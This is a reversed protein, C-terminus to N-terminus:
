DACHFYSSCRNSQRSALLDASHAHPQTRGGASLQAGGWGADVGAMASASSSSPASRAEAVASSAEPTVGSTTSRRALSAGRRSYTAIWVHHVRGESARRSPVSCLLLAQRNSRTSGCGYGGGRWGASTIGGNASVVDVCTALKCKCIGCALSTTTTRTCMHVNEIHQNGSTYFPMSHGQPHCTCTCRSKSKNALILQHFSPSAHV